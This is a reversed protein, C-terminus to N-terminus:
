KRWENQLAMMQHRLRLLIDLLTKYTAPERPARNNAQAGQQGNGYEDGIESLSDAIGVFQQTMESFSFENNEIIKTYNLNSEGGSLIIVAVQPGVRRIASDLELGTMDPLHYATIVVNPNITPIMSLADSGCEAAECRHGRAMLFDKLLCRIMPQNEVVLVSQESM